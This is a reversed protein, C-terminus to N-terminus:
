AKVVKLDSWRTTYSPSQADVRAGWQVVNRGGRGLQLSGNGFRSNLDVVARSLVETKQSSEDIFLTEGVAALPKLNSVTIGVKKYPVGEVYAQNLLDSVVAELRFLDRTPVDLIAEASAGQFAYDGHRSTGLMLRITPALLDLHWLDTVVSHLHYKLADHLVNKDNTTKAFSRSSLLSKQPSRITTVEYAIKSSMEAQLRVGDLGYRQGVISTPIDCLDGVTNCGSTSFARARGRGVGWLEGLSIARGEKNWWEPLLLTVQGTKKAVVSAYKAQTKSFSLGISVPVGVEREIAEKVSSAYGVPDDGEYVFFSEDISYQETYTYHNQMVEFVRRSIDRYLAFHSSFAVAGIDSMIDKIQFYPIGMPIGNDKIEQSRAVVCGDNSSLVVVPTKRLDPRFLRECSVFFNNCDLLGIVKM